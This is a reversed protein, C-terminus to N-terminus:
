EDGKRSTDHPAPSPDGTTEYMKILGARGARKRIEEKLQTANEETYGKQEYFARIEQALGVAQNPDMVEPAIVPKKTIVRRRGDSIRAMSALIIVLM